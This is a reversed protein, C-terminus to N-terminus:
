DTGFYRCSGFAPLSSHSLLVCSSFASTPRPVCAICTCFRASLPCAVDFPSGVRVGREICRRAYTRSRIRSTVKLVMLSEALFSVAPWTRLTASMAHGASSTKVHFIGSSFYFLRALPPLSEHHLSCSLPAASLCNLCFLHLLLQLLFAIRLATPCASCTCTSSSPVEILCRMYDVAQLDCGQHSRQRSRVRRKWIHVPETTPFCACTNLHSTCTCTTSWHHPQISHPHRM